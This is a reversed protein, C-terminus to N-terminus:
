LGMTEQLGRDASVPTQRDGRYATILDVVTTDDAFKVITNSDYAVCLRTFM